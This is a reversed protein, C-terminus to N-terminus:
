WKKPPPCPAKRMAPPGAPCEAASPMWLPPMMCGDANTVPPCAVMADPPPPMPCWSACTVGDNEDIFINLNKCFGKLDQCCPGSVHQHCACPHHPAPGQKLRQRWPGQHHLVHWKMTVVSLFLNQMQQLSM